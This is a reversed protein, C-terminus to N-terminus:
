VLFPDVIQRRLSSYVGIHKFSNPELLYANGRRQTTYDDLVTDKGYYSNCTASNMFSIIDNIHKSPYLIAPTCCSPSQRLFHFHPFIFHFIKLVGSRGLFLLVLINYFCTLCYLMKFDKSPLRFVFAIIILQVFAIMFAIILLELLRDIPSQLYGLLREPHFMKVFLVDGTNSLKDHNILKTATQKLLYFLDDHPLADDEVLLVYHPNYSFSSNLCFVYDQKEKELPHVLSFTQQHFRKISVVYQSVFDSESFELPNDDVNCMMLEIVFDKNFYKNRLEIFKSIVQTLYRPSYDDIGLKNRSTAIVTILIDIKRNTLRMDHSVNTPITKLFQLAHKLRNNNTSYLAAKASDSNQLLSWLASHPTYYSVCPLLVITCIITVFILTRSKKSLFLKRKLCSIVYIVIRRFLSYLAHCASFFTLVCKIIVIFM